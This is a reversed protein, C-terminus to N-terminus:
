KETITITKITVPNVPVSLEGGAKPNATVEGAAIKQVVDMGEIVKGFITYNPVNKLGEVKEGTGIFFQSGNTNEGYNAMAVVGIEYEHGNDLEDAFTYGPGGTGTGLPDGTQIMFDKIVRHFTLDDYFKERALFVFNNVTLPADKAFLQITFDGETTSVTALYDKNVDIQMEPPQSYTPKNIAAPPAPEPQVNQEPHAPEAPPTSSCGALLLVTFLFCGLIVKATKKM